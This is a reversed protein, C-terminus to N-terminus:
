RGIKRPDVKPDMKLKLARAIREFPVVKFNQNGDNNRGDQAILLGHPFARGLGFSCVDIGDTDSVGDIGGGSGIRFTGLPENKGERRYVAYSNNGQSSGIPSRNGSTNSVFWSPGLPTSGGSSNNLRSSPCGM